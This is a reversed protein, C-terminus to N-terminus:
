SVQLIKKKNLFFDKLNTKFVDEICSSLNKTVGDYREFGDKLM